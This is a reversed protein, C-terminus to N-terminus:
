EDAAGSPVITELALAAIVDLVEHANASSGRHATHHVAKKTGCSLGRRKHIEHLAARQCAVTGASTEKARCIFREARINRVQEFAFQLFPHLAFQRSKTAAMLHTELQQGAELRRAEIVADAAGRVYLEISRIADDNGPIIYDVGAPSNNTDVVGVVPIGLKVAESVAIKEHGVDVIFLVDPVGDMDQIGGLGRQLKELERQLSLGEKKSVKDLGGGDIMSELEKLRNISQRVTRFNTLMGGLWRRDVYPMDCRAAERAICEQAARKTGVFLVQGRNAAMRGLFNLADVYLPLTKELNVIHIKNREGFIYPAMQPNWFRTQHGFHVGAELMERMSVNPM